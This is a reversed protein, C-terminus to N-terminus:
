PKERLATRFASQVDSGDFHEDLWDMVDQAAARLRGIELDRQEVECPWPMGDKKCYLVESFAILPPKATPEDEVKWATHDAPTPIRATYPEHRKM